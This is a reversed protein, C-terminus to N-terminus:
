SSSRASDSKSHLSMRVMTARLPPKLSVTLPPRAQVEATTESTLAEEHGADDVFSVRVQITQGKEGSTLTYTSGTAGDIDAGGSMWQYDFSVNELGDEDAIDSTDAQLTEGVRALGDIEPLGTAPSNPRAQVEATSRGTRSEKNGASKESEGLARSNSRPEGSNQSPITSEPQNSLRREGSGCPAGRADCARGAPLTIRVDDNSTPELVIEWITTDRDLWWASIVKGGEVDLLDAYNRGVDVRVPESFEIRFVVETGPGDHSAPEMTFEASVPELLGPDTENRAESPPEGFDCSYAYNGATDKIAPSGSPPMIYRFEVEDSARIARKAPEELTLVVSRGSISVGTVNRPGGNVLVQFSEKSPISSGDLTRRFSITLQNGNVVTDVVDLSQKQPMGFHEASPDSDGVGNVAIVRLTYLTYNSLGTIMHFVQTLGEGFPQVIAEDITNPNSWSETGLKWQLRYHTIDSNGDKLPQKWITTLSGDGPIVSLYRPAMPVTVPPEPRESVPDEAIMIQYTNGDTWDAYLDQLKPHYWIFRNGSGNGTMADTFPLAIGDVYLTWDRQHDRDVRLKLEGGVVEKLYISFTSYEPIRGPSGPGVDPHTGPTTFMSWVQYEKGRFTFRNDSLSSYRLYPEQTTHYGLGLGMRNWDKSASDAFEVTACWVAAECTPVEMNMLEVTATSPTGRAVGVPLTGFGLEVTEGDDEVQDDYAMVTFTKRTDGSAFTVSSPVGTWDASTAGNMGTATIPIVIQFPAPGDLEVAVQAGAGGEYAEYNSAGFSVHISDVITVVAQPNDGSSLGALLTGFGLTLTEENEDEQDQVATIIFSTEEDGSGFDLNAPVGSYDGSTLGTGSTAILPISFSTQPEASLIVKVNTTSGERTTYSALEFGITVETVGDGFIEKNTGERGGDTDVISVVTENTTGESVATPLGGFTLKVSEDDDEDDDDTAEFDFTKETDGSNFVVSTPVSYDSATAGDQGTATIPITVTREPNASLIVKVTESSGEAVTYSSQEFSVTVSPVDDDTISVIAQSPSASSVSPPLTGFTLRVREGDDDVTDQIAEFDFTKETDGSNFVVSAPVGSFDAAVAGDMTTVTIPVEVTREPDASLKVKVAVTNGETVSYSASGYSVTVSPVDDDTISVTTEDTAGASVRTPLNQFGLKVSEGDDDVTDQTASFSFTKETDGANFVVNNPVNSYDSNTAGGQNTRAIPVTVTREPDASLVVKVTESSGEAVTYSSQEFSVTVSPVDDDTISVTTEDTTGATVRTPLNQFGLKVSEGDDDATDQSAQFTIEQETDGANFVVSNPVSYDSVTAGDQGTATIPITVTREPNASLIVKVVVSNGEGVTYSTEEFSVTVSPVDDDTISVVAQSPSASSVRAPLPGFNLRVREGDDDDTDDTASFSFTKETDGSNFVVTQPAISYDSSSAGDMNTVTISVEVTREPDASLKVKVTESSGEGVTYSSQEFSVTVSPVDDDTISVTTEDTTGATVRTPLNQFGLKVSEGDDDVADQTASFSFTKETEGSTFVVTTPVSYDSAGAGGQGTATIPITVTREPDANLKVKIVVSSGEGVTYSAEEFSVTVSPVDDDTISVTTEDTTGATVRTPLNQFGLKVSEGDDDATDQSAQFTIEQETDGANFVVSNPVSYDSVTAGDQGTATIPITVTREPNASLIVKVTESSGEAVTYSSQEFSVTVSPDDDDTISVIAQSPSASSVRAPLPGFNLRVREGDDDDTDDTASFSFTKETDGSNFVVTQPAISYDSSSAGDMNTVTISVEVTREPDASLKVKVTESSGEGVTYSSQEFSVTVSPDDDDTISVTTESPSGTTVRAPLSTGFGLKVSEGDDDVGDPSAQFRIEKETDGANFVVSGPVSYDLSTAGGQGTATIPITVTREPDASLKITVVVENETTSPTASDDSEAVTYSASGFSVTVEPHDNDNISVTAQSNSGPAVQAPLNAFGLRVSEGDDDRTDDIASFTLTKVTDGAGFNLTTPVGTFDTSGVGGLYTASVQIDVPREPEASLIVKVTESSGEAVTYSSQEFSVTVSPVDDDTISVIAQSPSASSVSPPLTGFTLRVREGDDDVTDQIAEFDFTKETDGSNFVVSAPVGSFDAAVAGDMTTVTIPVEVTREPDASLKVKVAVTNGETVSYSASGYSVTVSPVDDDTISVTTEDTAGASVRTPLNQFGLKVSEGDDDVTDQTASFSFTKETDGANFVVNNPVNSYDSNTAGGQNTRAIPVTVTREPDASLVVKVTESSGEAVTYSSQEFSVTVSPVDDDTISVTTEDTTGATVRTPLNQFGLKVSEGDDDATDQSAQFTIEQETDGANFVVSNPVSYDSVTAGDQGTATIPITVTREPNASLIVKVVVSNGEGVTYSTEEFSVTVSPVDDDTISVTTGSHTGASVQAPLTGFSVRVSEGDDDVNDSAATFTFSKETEGSNFVLSAPVNSYDQASAGGQNLRLLPITVTREPDASLVVKVTESSGEAVTYSSQEFSVTVSPVDDDTISVTTEDTAGASVRTPLNQFGLKVSEGDDDVTDQTASFSFTKETDGANFVVNNPVNSYDSNTAGGQNTRAIPVTVTREPDASLVVKVTESSGEAVTYSSQEFSVTVSPVDDDTISVTTEDTTGATVRTPLNQFGLKVSEGDDDATDQSAQFTIEQETDGANFVVSNPVSYDSVTAGDQGTATIPITVTREPNASLIVKVTESSGEAVTYSSQEFSVTVSPDDDDTISVVAQSPSASSVRAPLPGFNLRVREGDDDDTDDTASFSFTKETDGSNFVVTQPAISYDSSSAGDMNTVTISVEVTREPDASLKVKVTESSGEGVTYSSQEFSVTVSPDDDDTISVTTESPSGTTVRAPLSTGFGLKVSEGDDDVGDPSAQFRIEKETDGANFVVSGPVSYDLSTAGGQGTATIPITVTREPDASLKITVVVENETTSPTASDDSEAVTYSASGFSVTVEPHDNDNISVTAQSNSGPAVQAPLNAFGLRVSEGDDDRTDDIASFTLTKVTDGAGFNLTTPVGTFDTSGVGGLYTASVQIDVPREPEASLIVKVTESSGEAVTYSSQEFSVTVSPVDDDTISVIAQSPSASSVSPPLTGFTLRVREGDDDVTDQIAEFDFTKETDGSNFVVSAPVGSFDAAVAGDMTTVTIPVEVTREPDASLKVKVAVTNGETVSYSASGYSVTVPADDDDTVNVLVNDVSIGDYEADTSAATHTVTGDEDDHGTDQSATVTVTQATAWTTTTFTLSAPETTVDTNSPDNVTITVSHTPQTDLVVTYTDSDGEDIDLSTESVTVGATDDDTVTVPVSDAALGDYKADYSSSVTHKITVVAENVADDDQVVTVTVTQATDWNGSTFTLTTKNLSVDTGTVGGITVTVDGVPETDLVVTYTDSDGEEIDLSTESITVGATDDDTISIITEAVSGESVGAPLTSGFTLKVSEGDDDIDDQTAAFAFSKQTEGANFTIGLPVNSYDASSAGDQETVKIPIVVEGEPDADLTVTVDVTRGEAASYAASGFSVKVEPVDDDTITVTAESTTGSMVRDPLNGFGLKVSEGDDNDTDQTATFTVAKETEGSAFTVNTPVGSYDAASAGDQDTATVPITVPREPDVSLTVTVEVTGGEDVTYSPEGFSVEVLPDDDDRITVAVGAASLDRYVTDASSIEHTILMAPEDDGDNDHTGEVFVYRRGWSRPTFTLSGPNVTFGANAPVDVTVVVDATPESTLGVTYFRREGERVTLSTHSVRVGSSDDNAITLQTSVVRLDPHDSMGEITITEDEDEIDDDAGSLYLRGEGSSQGAEIRLPTSLVATYSQSRQTDGMFSVTFNVDSALTSDGELTAIITPFHLGSGEAVTDNALSLVVTTPKPDNDVITLRVGNVPLGPDSNLGRIAIQEDGEYVTDEIPTLTLNATASFEGAPITLTSSDWASTYDDGVTASVDLVSLAVETDVSRTGGGLLTARVPITVAGGGEGIPGTTALLSISTPEQDDDEIVVDAPSVTITGPVTGTVELTENGEAIDDDLVMLTMAATASMEGAPITLTATAAQYDEGATATDDALNLSVVTDIVRSSVGALTGTVILQLSSASEAVTDPAVTLMVEGPEVDNDVIKVGKGASGALATSKASLRAIEDDESLTDDVPTLTITTNVSSEGAPITVNATTATYDVGLTANNQVGPRDIMEVTVPTDVAFQTTGDLAVTVTIDTAGADEDVERHSVSSITLGTPATDDDVITGEARTVGLPVMEPPSSNGITAEELMVVFTEASEVLTDQTTTVTFTASRDGAPVAVTGSAATYDKDPVATEGADLADGAQKTSWGASVNQDSITSLTITFTAVAGETVSPADQISVTLVDQDLIRTTAINDTASVSGTREDTAASFIEVKLTEENESIGDALVPFTITGRSEGASIVLVGAKGSADGPPFTIAGKPASYDDTVTASGATEFPVSVDDAPVGGTLTVTFTTDNGEAVTEADADISATLTENDRISVEFSGETPSISALRTDNDVLEVSFTELAAEFLNDDVLDVDIFGTNEGPMFTLKGNAGVYDAGLAATGPVTRWGVAPNRESATTNPHSLEVTFRVSGIQDEDVISYTRSVSAVLAEEDDDITGVATDDSLSTLPSWLRSAHYRNLTQGPKSLQATFTENREHITDDLTVVSFTETQEGALFTLTATRAEFDQGLSTATVNGHSTAEGDATAVDVTVEQPAPANLRVTFDLQGDSEDARADDISFALDNDYLYLTRYPMGQNHSDPPGVYVPSYGTGDLINFTLSGDAEVSSDDVTPLSLEVAAVGQGFTVTTPLAGSMFDGTQTIDLNVTIPGNAPHGETAVSFCEGHITVYCIGEGTDQPVLRQLLVLVDDGEETHFTSQSFAIGYDIDDDLITGQGTDGALTLESPNSLVVNFTEDAEDSQDDLLSVTVTKETEGIAFNLTGSASTFDVDSTAAATSGDEATTWDVSAAQEFNAQSLSVTFEITGDAEGASADSVSVDPPVYDDDTVATTVSIVRWPTGPYDWIRYCYRDDQVPCHTPSIGSFQLEVTIRGDLEDVSDDTTPVSLTTTAQNAAFTVTQPASGSIYEGEQTVQVSVQLPRTISDPKGGHRYLTFTAPDGEAVSANDRKIRVGMFRSYYRFDITSPTGVQYQPYYGCSAPSDPCYHSQLELTGSRGLASTYALSGISVGNADGPEFRWGKVEDRTSTEDQRPSPWHDVHTIDADLLLRGSVDGTRSFPLVVQDFGDFFESTTSSGTVTPIDDDQVWIKASANYLAVYDDDADNLVTAHYTSNGYNLSDDTTQRTVTVTRTGAPFDVTIEETDFHIHDEPTTIGRTPDDLDAQTVRFRVRNLELRAQLASDTPTSRTVTFSVPQGENVWNQDKTVTVSPKVGDDDYITITHSNPWGARYDTGDVLTVTLKGVDEATNDDQTPITVTATAQQLAFTVTEPLTGTTYDGTETVELSVTLPSRGTRSLELTISEGEVVRLDSTLLIVTELNTDRVTVTVSSPSARWYTRPEGITPPDLLTATVTHSGDRANDDTTPITHEVTSDGAPFVVTDRRNEAHPATKAVQLWVTLEDTTDGDRTLTLIVDSGEDVAEAQAELMVSSEDDEIVGDHILNTLGDQLAANVPNSLVIHFREKYGAISNQLIEVTIAASTEGPDFTLTGTSQTVSLGDGTFHDHVSYEVTTTMLSPLPTLMDVWIDVTGDGESVTTSTDRFGLVPLPDKNRVIITASPYSANIEYSDDALLEVKFEADGDYGDNRHTLYGPTINGSGAPITLTKNGLTSDYVANGNESHDVRVQLAEGIHGNHSLRYHLINGEDISSRFAEVSVVYPDNDLIAGTVTATSAPTWFEARVPHLTATYHHDPGKYSDDAQSYRFTLLSMGADMGFVHRKEDGVLGATIPIELPNRDEGIREIELVLDTGEDVEAHNFSISVQPAVDNDAVQVTLSSSGVIDYHPEQAVTFTFANDLIDRWDDPPTITIEKTVEGPAFVVSSPVEVADSAYNGELFGGPDEVSVGVILENATNHGRTLTFTATDGETISTDDVSLAITPRDDDLIRVTKTSILLLRDSLTSPVLLGVMLIDQPEYASDNLTAVTLTETQTVYEVFLDTMPVAPFVVDHVQDTPNTGDAMRRNPEWTRVQVSHPELPNGWNRELTITVEQGEPLEKPTVSKLKIHVGLAHRPWITKKRDGNVTWYQAEESTSLVTGDAADEIQKIKASYQWSNDSIGNDLLEIRGVVQRQNGTLTLPFEQYRNGTVPDTPWSSHRPSEWDRDHEVRIVFTATKGTDQARRSVLFHAPHPEMLEHRVAFGRDDDYYFTEEAPGPTCNGGDCTLYSEGQEWHQSDSGIRGWKFTLEQATDNDSVSLTTFTGGIGTQGLYYGTGPLVHVKVLGAPELDRQDDPFTLTVTQTTSNAPITVETPIAPAPDWHNGRLRNDPDDVHINVTLPQATDGGTRTLTIISSGGEVVSTPNAGVTVIASGSPPDNIEIELRNPSGERYRNAGDVQSISLIDAILQDVGTEEVGDVFPYVTFEAYGRWAEITVNHYETSPNDGFGEQRNPESTQVRVTVPKSMPGDVRYLTFLVSEGETVTIVDADITIIGNSAGSDTADITTERFGSKVTWYQAEEFSTLQDGEHDEIPRISAWYDWNSESEGNFTVIFEEKVELDSGTLQLAYDRYLRGNVTDETWDELRWDDGGRDTEVRVTFTAPNGTDADQQRRKVVFALKDGENVDADNVGEKGFNLELEQASDNDSVTTSASTNLGTHEPLYSVSQQMSPPEVEVELPGNPLDRHDDVTQLRVTSTSSNAEFEVSTPLAPPPDWFDGRTFGSPDEVNIQVTLPSATDGTRTLTFTAADGETISTSDSAISIRPVNSPPDLITFEAENQADLTYSGDSSAVLKAMLNHSAEASEDVGDVYASVLIDKTPFLGLLGHFRVRHTQLSPNNGNGDDLNPEWTEVEVTVDTGFVFGTGSVRFRVEAGEYVQPLGSYSAEIKFTPTQSQAHAPPTSAVLVLAALGLAAAIPQLFSAAPKPCRTM